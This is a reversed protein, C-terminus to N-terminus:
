KKAWAYLLEESTLTKNQSKLLETVDEPKVELERAREVMICGRAGMIDQVGWLQGHPESDVEEKSKDRHTNQGRGKCSDHINKLPM